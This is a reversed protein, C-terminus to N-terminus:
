IVAEFPNIRPQLFANAFTVLSAFIKLVGFKSARKYSCWYKISMRLAWTM